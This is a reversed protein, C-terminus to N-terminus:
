RRSMPELGAASWDQAVGPDSLLMLFAAAPEPLTSDAHVAASFTIYSQLEAPLPGVMTIGNAAAVESINFLGVEAEGSAVLEAGGNIANRLLTKPKIDAAIGLKTFMRVLAPSAAGGSAPDPHVISRAQLLLTRVAQATSIDPLPAGRRVIIGIGVRALEVRSGARFMDAQDLAVIDPTPLVVIDPKQGAALKERIAGPPAVTFVVQNGSQRSIKAAVVKEAQAPAGSTFVRIDAAFSREAAPVMAACMLLFRVLLFLGHSGVRWMPM